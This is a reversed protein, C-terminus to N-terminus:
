FKGSSFKGVENGRCTFPSYIFLPFLLNQTAHHATPKSESPTAPANHENEPIGAWALRSAIGVGSPLIVQPFKPAEEEM